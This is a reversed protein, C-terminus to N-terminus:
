QSAIAGFPLWRGPAGAEICVWGIFNSATPNSNWCIDGKSYNGESPVGPGTTFRKNAFSIDGRVSLDIGEVPNNIGVTVPGFMKIPRRTHATNGIVIENLDAYYTDADAVKLTIDKDGNLESNTIKFKKFGDFGIEIASIPNRSANISGFFTATGEVNLSELTGLKSINSQTVSNGLTTASLVAAKNIYYCQGEGLDISESSWLRDPQAMMILHRPDGTGTWILGRGYIETGKTAKFELPHTREIRNDSVLNDVTLTGNIKVDANKSNENGFVVQGNSKFTARPLNDTVIELDTNTFTGVSMAGERGGYVVFENDYDVIGLTGNPEDTGLGFKALGSNVFAFEGLAANGSVNLSKLTGVEQLNSKVVTRGLENLSLVASDDIRYTGTESLDFSGNTWIRNGSRYLLMTDVTNSIWHIGKGNLQAESDASFNGIDYSGGDESIIQKAKIIQAEITGTSSINGDVSVDRTIAVAGNLDVKGDVTLQKLRGVEKLNSRVVTQGLADQSLVPTGAIHYAQNIALDPEITFSLKGNKYTVSSADNGVRWVLGKGLMESPNLGVFTLPERTEQKVDAILNKVKITNASINGVIDLDKEFNVNEAISISGTLTMNGAVTVNGDLTKTRIRDVTATGDTVILSTKTALDQIGTSQFESIVGGHIKNGSISDDPIINDAM